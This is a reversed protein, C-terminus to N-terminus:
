VDYEHRDRGPFTWVLCGMAVLFIVACVALPIPNEQLTERESYRITGHDNRFSRADPPASSRQTQPLEAIPRLGTMPLGGFLAMAAVFALVGRAVWLLTRRLFVRRILKTM